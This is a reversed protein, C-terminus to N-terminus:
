PTAVAPVNASQQKASRPRHTMLRVIRALTAKM